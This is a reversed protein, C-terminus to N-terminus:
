NNISESTTTTSNLMNLNNIIHGIQEIINEVTSTAQEVTSTAFDIIDQLTSSATNSTNQIPEVTFPTIIELSADSTSTSNLLLQLIDTSTSSIIEGVVPVITYDPAQMESNPITTTGENSNLLYQLTSNYDSSYLSLIESNSLAKDYIKIDDLAGNFTYGLSIGKIFNTFDYPKTYTGTWILNGNSYIKVSMNPNNQFVFDLKQWKNNSIQVNSAMFLGYNQLSDKVFSFRLYPYGFYTGLNFYDLSGGSMSFVDQSLGSNGTKAWFSMTFPKTNFNKPGSFSISSNQNFQLATNPDTYRNSVVVPPQVTNYPITLSDSNITDNKLYDATTTGNFKFWSITREADLSAIVRVKRTKSTSMAGSDTVSYNLVYDGLKSTDVNGSIVIKSTLNGDETDTATVGPDIFISNQQVFENIDGNINLVPITNPAPVFPKDRLYESSIESGTLVRNFIKFDDMVQFAWGSCCSVGNSDAGLYINPSMGSFTYPFNTTYTNKLVGDQYIKITAFPNNEITVDLKHWAMDTIDTGADYGQFFRAGNNSAADFVIKGGSILIKFYNGFAPSSETLVTQSCCLNRLKTWMSFTRAQNTWTISDPASVINNNFVFSTDPMDYRDAFSGPKYSGAYGSTLTTTTSVENKLKNATNIAGDFKYHASPTIIYPQMAPGSGVAVDNVITSLVTETNDTYVASIKYVRLKTDSWVPWNDITQYFTASTEGLFVVDNENDFKGYVKYKAISGNTDGSTWNIKTKGSVNTVSLNTPANKTKDLALAISSTAVNQNLTFVITSTSVGDFYKEWTNSENRNVDAFEGSFKYIGPKTGHIYMTYLCSTANELTIINGDGTQNILKVNTINNEVEGTLHSVGVGNGDGDKLYVNVENGVTFNLITTTASSLSSSSIANLSTSSAYLSGLIFKPIEVSFGGPLNAHRTTMPFNLTFNSSNLSETYTKTSLIPVVDDGFDKNQSDVPSGDIYLSNTSSAITIKNKTAPEALNGYFMKAQINANVLTSVFQNYMYPVGTYSGENCFGDKCIDDVNGNLALLFENQNEKTSIRQLNSYDTSTSLFPYVPMLQKISLADKQLFEKMKINSFETPACYWAGYTNKCTRLTILKRSANDIDGGEWSYYADTAGRMPTGVFSIKRIQNARTSNSQIYARTVLGGMSHAVVDVKKGPYLKQAETICDAFYTNASVDVSERWDYPCDIITKGLVYGQNLFEQKLMGWGVNAPSFPIDGTGNALSLLNKNPHRDSNLFPIVTNPGGLTSGMIGPILIVPEHVNDVEGYISIDLINKGTKKSVSKKSVSGTGIWSEFDLRFSIVTSLESNTFTVTGSANTTKIIKFDVCASGFMCGVLAVNANPVLLKNKDKVFITVSNTTTSITQSIDQNDFNNSYFVEQGLVFKLRANTQVTKLNLSVIQSSSNLLISNVSSLNGDASINVTQPYIYGSSNIKIAFNQGVTQNAINNVGFTKGTASTNKNITIPISITNNAKSVESLSNQYDLVFILNYTGSGSYLQSGASPLTISVSYTGKLSPNLTGSVYYSGIYNTTSTSNLYVGIYHQNAVAQGINTLNLQAALNDGEKYSQSTGLNVGGGAFTIDPKLGPATVTVNNCGSQAGRRNLEDIATVKICYTGALNYLHTKSIQTGSNLMGENNYEVASSNNADWMIEYKIKNGTPSTASTTLTLVQSKDFNSSSLTITPITPNVGSTITPYYFYNTVSVPSSGISNNAVMNWRYNKGPILGTITFSNTTSNGSNLVGSAIDRWYITYSTANTVLNYNITLSNSSISLGPSNPYNPTLNVPTAPAVNTNTTTQTSTNDGAVKFYFMTSINYPSSVNVKGAGVNWRYVHGPTLGSIFYSTNMGVNDSYFKSVGTTQNTLYFGYIKAGTVPTWTFNQSTSNVITPNSFNTSGPSINTPVGISSDKITYNLQMTTSAVIAGGKQTQDLYTGDPLQIIGPTSTYNPDFIPTADLVKSMSLTKGGIVKTLYSSNSSLNNIETLANKGESIWRSILAAVIPASFSTGTHPSFTNGLTGSIVDRGPAIVDVTNAGFNSFTSIAGTNDMSGVVVINNLAYSAPYIKTQDINYGNNGSSVVVIVGRSQAYSIADFLSQSYTPGSLSMNIVDANNNIAFYIAKVVNSLDILGNDAVRLAMIKARNQSLSSIGIGNDTSAAVLTSVATGHDFNDSAAPNNDNSVFDWGNSCGGVIQINNADVCNASSWMVEKLDSNNYDVGSDIVAVLVPRNLTSTSSFINPYESIISNIAWDVQTTSDIPTFIDDSSFLINGEKNEISEYEEKTLTNKLNQDSESNIKENLTKLKAFNDNVETKLTSSDINGKKYKSFKNKRENKFSSIEDKIKVGRDKKKVQDLKKVLKSFDKNNLKGKKLKIGFSKGVEQIEKETVIDSTTAISTTAFNFNQKKLEKTAEQEFENRLKDEETEVYQIPAMEPTSTGITQMTSTGTFEQISTTSVSSTAEDANVLNVVFFFAIIIKIINTFIKVRM